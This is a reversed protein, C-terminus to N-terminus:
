QTLSAARDLLYAKGYANLIMVRLSVVGPARATLAPPWAMTGQTGTGAVRAGEGSAINEAIWLVLLRSTAKTQRNIKLDYLPAIGPAVDGTPRAIEYPIEAAKTEIEQVQPARSEFKYSKLLSELRGDAFLHLVWDHAGAPPEGTFQKGKYDKAKVREGTAPNLWEVKYGRQEINVTVPGPKEVYVIYEVDPLAIARGGELDYYPLMEWYRTTKMFDHWIQTAPADTPASPYQGNMAANWLDARSRIGENVAPLAYFEHEVAGVNPDPTGYSLVNLWPQGDRERDGAFTSSTMAAGTTRIHKYPDLRAILQGVERAIAASGLRDEFPPLGTWTMNFPAYRSVIETVYREREARTAPVWALRVDAVIGRANIERIREAIARQDDTQAISIPLHTVGGAWLHPQLDGITQFHHVNAVQIFGPGKAATATVKGLQGDLRAISSTLRYDWEGAAVPAFRLVLTQGEAFARIPITDRRPSRFEARLEATASEGSQLPFVLDCAEWTAVTCTPTQAALPLIATLSAILALSRRM